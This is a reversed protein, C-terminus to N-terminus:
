HYNRTHRSVKTARRRKSAPTIAQSAMLPSQSVLTVHNAQQQREQGQRCCNIPAVRVSNKGYLWWEYQLLQEWFGSNLWIFLQIEQVWHHAQCYHMLTVLAPSSHICATCHVLTGAACNGHICQAVQDGLRWSPFQAPKLCSSAYM